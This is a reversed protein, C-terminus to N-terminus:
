SQSHTSARAARARARREGVEHFWEGLTLVWGLVVGIATGLGNSVVDRADSVRGPIEQQAIEIGLTLVLGILVAAAWQRRGLLLLFFVGVPVFMAVNAAFEIDSASLGSTPEYAQLERVVRDAVRTMLSTGAGSQPTLTMWGVFGLYAFTLM